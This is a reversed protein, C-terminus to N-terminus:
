RVKSCFKWKRLFVYKKHSKKSFYEIKGNKTTSKKRTKSHRSLRNLQYFFCEAQEDEETKVESNALSREHSFAPNQTLGVTKCKDLLWNEPNM